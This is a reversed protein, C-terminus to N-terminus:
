LTKSISFLFTAGSGAGSEVWVDGVHKKAIEKVIALGLGSGETGKSTERRQFSEFLRDVDAPGIGVGDDRVSFIHHSETEVCGFEIESLRSGGYKLANDVLNSFVRTIGPEDAIIKPLFAPELWSIHREELKISIEAKLKALIQKIDIRELCLPIERTSIYTNIQEVSFVIQGALKLIQDCYLRGKEDLQDVYDRHFRKILGYLGVSPSKLDHSASYAFFKIAEESTKVEEIQQQLELVARAHSCAVGIQHGMVMLLDIDEHDFEMSRKAALNLVGEVRDMVIFPVCIVVELGKKSLLDAREKDALEATHQAVVSKTRASKGSFGEDLNVKELGVVDLGSYAALKLCQEKEDMLYIRGSDLGFHNLVIPLVGEMLSTFDLARSLFDGLTLLAALAQNREKLGSKSSEITVHKKELFM